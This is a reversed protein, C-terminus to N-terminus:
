LYEHNKLVKHMQAMDYMEVITVLFDDIEDESTKLKNVSCKEYKDFKDDIKFANGTYGGLLYMINELKLEDDESIVNKIGKVKSKIEDKTIKDVDFIYFLIEEVHKKLDESFSIYDSVLSYFSNKFDDFTVNKGNEFDIMESLFHGRAHLINYLCLLIERKSVKEKLARSRLHYVTRDIPKVISDNSTTFSLYGEQKSEGKSILGFDDFADLLQEKRWRKRSLNRRQSRAKRSVSAEQASDFMRVGMYVVDKENLLATGISTIGIDLGLTNGM